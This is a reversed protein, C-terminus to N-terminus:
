SQVHGGCSHHQQVPLIAMRGCPLHNLRKTLHHDAAVVHDTDHHKRDQHDDVKHHDGLTGPSNGLDTRTKGQIGHRALLHGDIGIQIGSQNLLRLSLATARFHGLLGVEIAGHVTGALEHAAIRDGAQHNQKDVQDTANGDTHKLM